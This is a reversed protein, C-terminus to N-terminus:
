AARRLLFKPFASYNARDVGRGGVGVSYHVGIRTASLVTNYLAVEDLKAQPTNGGADSGIYTTVTVGASTDGSDVPVTVDVGNLWLRPAVGAAKTAVIHLPVGVHAATLPPSEAGFAIGPSWIQIKDATSINLYPGENAADRQRILAHQGGISPLSDMQYWLEYTFPGNGFEFAATQVITVDGTGNSDFAKDDDGYLLGAVGLIGSAGLAYTGNRTGTEDVATTGSTEGLRWYGVPSDALVVDRYAM